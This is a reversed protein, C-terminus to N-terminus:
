LNSCFQFCEHLSQWLCSMLVQLIHFFRCLKHTKNRPLVSFGVTYAGSCDVVGVKEIACKGVCQGSSLRPQSTFQAGNECDKCQTQGALDQYKGDPCELCVSGNYYNGPECPVPTPHSFSGNVTLVKGSACVGVCLATTSTISTTCECGCM